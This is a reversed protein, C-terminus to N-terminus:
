LFVPMMHGLEYVNIANNTFVIRVFEKTRSDGFSRMIKKLMTHTDRNKVRPTISLVHNELLYPKNVDTILAYNFRYKSTGHGRNVVITDTMFGKKKIYNKKEKNKHSSISIRNEVIDTNYILRTFSSDDTLIHKNENWLVNGVCM